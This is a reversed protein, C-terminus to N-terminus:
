LGFARAGRDTLDDESMTTDARIALLALRRTEEFLRDTFM